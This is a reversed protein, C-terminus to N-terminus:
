KNIKDIDFLHLSLLINSPIVLMIQYLQSNNLQVLDLFASLCAFLLPFDLIYPTATCYDYSNNLMSIIAM